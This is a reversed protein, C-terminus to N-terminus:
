FLNPFKSPNSEHMLGYVKEIIDDLSPKSFYDGDSAYAPRHPQSTITVPENDLHYYGKQIELIQQLIFASASGPADEDIIVLHNTKKLSKLVDHHIDFPLLSQIDIVEADIGMSKLENAARMVIRWTSGYTVITVDSGKKTIEVVGVSTTFKGLNAPLKEKRRYSNLSEIILAPEDSQLLTNYFGAAKTLNRPVLVLMGRMLNIIGGMPSGSHWVGELRHGRTRVIVPAKQQGVTRYLLSSLDDALTNICFLIYDLYQIEAIPRFGRMALGIGQGIITSERIGTDSVRLEGFKKQLGELGLNVDGIKGCDEGFVVLEPHTHFLQEFNDRLIVRGDVEKSNANYEPKIYPVSTSKWKTESYLHSSYLNRQTEFKEHYWQLFKSKHSINELRLTRIVKRLSLFIDKKFLIPKSKLKNIEQQLINKNQSNKVLIEYHRIVDNKLGHISSSFSKWALKKAKKVEQRTNKELSQLDKETAIHNNEIKFELIWKRFQQNCDYEKEWALRKASKYREHSGSTSHGQPQTCEQVHIIVPVHEKRAIKEALSYVEILKLYDWAKVSLIEIGKDKKNRQFGKLIDSLNEKSYQYKSPVSIGYGDDWISLIMPVQLVAAANITEWFLGESTSGDGITGFAIENGNKSFKNANKLDPLHRYLKSAMALGLLRSMQGSTTSIDSSSNKLNILNKWSGDKNVLSTSFHSTMQRGGSSKEKSIDTDAYLQAFFGEATLQKIAFMFTQDRYYGSRFDGEKFVKAMAIQPLEKGDGFIGFKAKGTHVDRRGTLSIERSYYALQYDELVDKKFKEFAQKNSQLTNRNM